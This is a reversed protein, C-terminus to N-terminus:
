GGSQQLTIAQFADQREKASDQSKECWRSVSALSHLNREDGTCQRSEKLAEKRQHTNCLMLELILNTKEHHVLEITLTAFSSRVIAISITTVSSHIPLQVMNAKEESAENMEIRPDLLRWALSVRSKTTANQHCRSKSNSQLENVFSSTVKGVGRGWEVILTESNTRGWIRM